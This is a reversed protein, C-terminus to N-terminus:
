LLAVTVPPGVRTMGKGKPLDALHAAILKRKRGLGLADVDCGLDLGMKRLETMTPCTQKRAM